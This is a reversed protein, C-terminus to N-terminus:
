DYVMTNRGERTGNVLAQGRPEGFYIGGTLERVVLLDIGEVVELRLTSAEVLAPFVAAPRLNAFLGLEKRIRLLGREPREEFPLRDWEPGGVAGMLVARCGRAREVAEDALPTGLTDIAAGGILAEEFDLSIRARRAAAELVLRAQATVEPGIGDGPLLLIRHM